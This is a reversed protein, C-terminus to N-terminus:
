IGIWDNPFINPVSFVSNYWKRPYVNVGERNCLRAGWYSFTSNAIIHHRCKSMLFMDYFSNKGSNFDIIKYNSALGEYIHSRVYEVDDTFIFFKCNHENSTIYDIATRYYEDTCVNGYIKSYQPLIYDGRRIHFSVSNCSLIDNLVKSNKEDLPLGKLCLQNLHDHFKIDQWWGDYLIGSSPYTEDTIKPLFHLKGLTKLVIVLSKIWFPEKPLSVEFWKDIELGNHGKLHKLDYFGYVKHEKFKDKIYLYFLYEFIQNGLGGKFIIIKM